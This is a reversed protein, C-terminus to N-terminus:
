NDIRIFEGKLTFELELGNNLKVSQHTRDLDWEVIYQSAYNEKTYKLIKTPITSEPLKQKGNISKIQNKSNFELKIGDKLIVDYEKTLGEYDIEAQIVESNSFHTKVYTQIPAPTQSYPIVKDQAFSSFTLSLPVAILANLLHKRAKM